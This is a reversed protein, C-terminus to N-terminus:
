SHAEDKAKRSIKDAIKVLDIFHDAARRLEDSCSPAAHDISSVVTVIAGGRKLQEVLPVFDGRGSFLYVHDVHPALEMARIALAVAIDAKGERSLRQVVTWNNFELFDLLPRIAVFEQTEEVPTFYHARLIDGKANFYKLVAAYDIDIGLARATYYNTVGDVFIACRESM